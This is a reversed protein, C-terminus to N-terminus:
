NYMKFSNTIRLSKESKTIKISTAAGTVAATSVAGERMRTCILPQLFDETRTLFDRIDLNIQIGFQHSNIKPLFFVQLIRREGLEDGIRAVVHHINGAFSGRIGPLACSVFFDQSSGANLRNVEAPVSMQQAKGASSTLRPMPAASAPSTEAAGQSTASESCLPRTAWAHM